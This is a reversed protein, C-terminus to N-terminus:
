NNCTPRALLEIQEMYQVEHLMLPRQEEISRYKDRLSPVRARASARVLGLFDVHVSVVDMRGSYLMSVDDRQLRTSELVRLRFCASPTTMVREGPALRRDTPIKLSSIPLSRNESCHDMDDVSGHAIDWTLMLKQGEYDPLTIDGWWRHLNALAIEECWWSFDTAAGPDPLFATEVESMRAGGFQIKGLREYEIERGSETHRVFSMAELPVSGDRRLVKSYGSLSMGDVLPTVTLKTSALRCHSMRLAARAFTKSTLRMSYITMVDLDENLRHLRAVELAKDLTSEDVPQQLDRRSRHESEMEERQADDSQELSGIAVSVASAVDYINSNEDLHLQIQGRNERIYGELEVYLPSVRYASGDRLRAELHMMLFPDVRRSLVAVTLKKITDYFLTVMPEM